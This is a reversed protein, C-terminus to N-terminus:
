KLSPPEMEPISVVNFLWLLLFIVVITISVTIIFKRRGKKKIRERIAALEEPTAQKDDFTFGTDDYVRKISPTDLPERRKHRANTQLVARMYEGFPM